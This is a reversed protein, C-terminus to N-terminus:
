CDYSRPRHAAKINYGVSKVYSKINERHHGRLISNKPTNRRITHYYKISKESSRMGKM